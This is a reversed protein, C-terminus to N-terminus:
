KGRGQRGLKPNREREAKEKADRKDRKDRELTKEAMRERLRLKPSRTDVPKDERPMPPPGFANTKAEGRWM